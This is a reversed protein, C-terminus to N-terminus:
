FFNILKKLKKKKKGPNEKIGKEIIDAIHRLSYDYQKLQYFCVAINYSIDARNGIIQKAKKFKELAREYKKEKFLICAKNM